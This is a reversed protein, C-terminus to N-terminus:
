NRGNQNTAPRFEFEEYTVPLIKRDEDLCEDLTNPFTGAKAMGVEGQTGMLLGDNLDAVQIAVRHARALQDFGVVPKWETGQNLSNPDYEALKSVEIGDREEIFNSFDHRNAELVIVTPSRRSTLSKMWAFGKAWKVLEDRNLGCYFDLFGPRGTTLLRDEFPIPIGDENDSSSTYGAVLYVRNIPPRSLEVPLIGPTPTKGFKGTIRQSLKGILSESM